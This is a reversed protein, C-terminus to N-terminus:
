KVKSYAFEKSKGRFLKEGNGDLFISQTILDNQSQLAQTHEDYIAVFSPLPRDESHEMNVWGEQDYDNLRWKRNSVTYGNDSEQVFISDRVRRMGVKNGTELHTVEIAYERVYIGSADIKAIKENSNCSAILLSGACLIMLKSKM